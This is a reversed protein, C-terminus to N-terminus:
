WDSSLISGRNQFYEDDEDYEESEPRRAGALTAEYEADIRRRGEAALAEKEEDTMQAAEAVAAEAFPRFVDPFNTTTVVDRLSKQGALVELLLGRMAPDPSKDALMQVSKRLQAAMAPDDRLVGLLPEQNPQM